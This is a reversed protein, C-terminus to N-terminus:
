DRNGFGKTWDGWRELILVIQKAVLDEADTVDEYNTVVVDLPKGEIIKIEITTM